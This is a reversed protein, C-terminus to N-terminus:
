KIELRANPVETIRILQMTADLEDDIYIQTDDIFLPLSVGWAKSFANALKITASRKQGGSLNEWPIYGNSTLGYTICTDKQDGDLNYEFMKFRIGPFKEKISEDLKNLAEKTFENCEDVINTQEDLRNAIDQLELGKKELQKELHINTDFPILSQKLSNIRQQIDNITREYIEKASDNSQNELNERAIAIEKSLKIYTDTTEFTPIDEITPEVLELLEKEISTIDVTQTPFSLEKTVKNLEERRNYGSQKLQELRDSKHKNFRAEASVLMDSPLPQLCTQCTLSGPVYKTNSEQAYLDLLEKIENNLRSERNILDNYREDQQRKTFKAQELKSQLSQKKAVYENYPKRAADLLENYKLSYNSREQSLQTQLDSLARQLANRTEDANSLQELSKVAVLKEQELEELSQRISDKNLNSTDIMSDKLTEVGAYADNQEKKINSIAFKARKM